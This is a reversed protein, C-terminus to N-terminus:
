MISTLLLKVNINLVNEVNLNSMYILLITLVNEVFSGKVEKRVISVIMKIQTMDVTSHM